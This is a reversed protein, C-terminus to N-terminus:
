PSVKKRASPSRSLDIQIDQRQLHWTLHPEHTEITFASPFLGYKFTTPQGRDIPPPTFRNERGVAVSIERGSENAYGMHVRWQGRGLSEACVAGADISDANEGALKSIANRIEDPPPVEGSSLIGRARERLLPDPAREEVKKLLAETRNRAALAEELSSDARCNCHPNEEIRREPTATQPTALLLLSRQM